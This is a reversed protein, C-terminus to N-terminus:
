ASSPMRSRTRDRPSPSTYLLCTKYNKFSNIKNEFKKWDYKSIWYQSIKKLFKYNTGYEWGNVKQIMKWPYNKVKKYIINLTNKPVSIKYQRIM